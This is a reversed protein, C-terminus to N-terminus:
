ANEDKKVNFNYLILANMAAFLTYGAQTELTDETLMSGLLIVFVAVYVFSMSHKYEIFPYILVIVFFLPLLIGGVLFFTLFQNHCGSIPEGTPQHLRQQSDLLSKHNGFGVGFCPNQAILECSSQWAVVRKLLSSQSVDGYKRYQQWSFFSQYLARKLGFTRTYEVNAISQEINHVDEESLQSVAASDKRWHLSNLYRVLTAEVLPDNFDSTSRQHWASQLEERCVYVGVYSGNEVLSHVDHSYPRHNQTYADLHAFDKEDIHFYQYSIVFVYAVLLLVATLVAGAAIRRGKMTSQSCLLFVCYAVAVVALLVIGTLTQAIFLYLVLWVLAVISLVRVFTKIETMKLIAFMLLVIAIDICLSFRIHSIFVSIERINAVEHTAYFGISYFTALLVAIVFTGLVLRLEKRSLASSTVVVVPALCVPLKTVFNQLASFADNSKVFGLCLIPLFLLWLFASKHSKLRQWKEAWNWEVIWNLGLFLLSVSMMFNSFPIAACLAAVLWVYIIHHIQQRKM